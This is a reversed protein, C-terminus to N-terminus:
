HHEDYWITCHTGANAGPQTDKGQKTGLNETSLKALSFNGPTSKTLGPSIEIGKRLAKIRDELYSKSISKVYLYMPSVKPDLIPNCSVEEQYHLM